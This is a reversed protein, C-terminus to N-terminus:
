LGLYFVSMRKHKLFNLLDLIYKYRLHWNIHCRCKKIQILFTCSNTVKIKVKLMKIIM